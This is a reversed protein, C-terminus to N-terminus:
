GSSTLEASSANTSLASTFVSPAIAAAAWIHARVRAAGDAPQRQGRETRPRDPAGSPRLVQEQAHRSNMEGIQQDDDRGPEDRRQRQPEERAKPNRRDHELDHQPNQETRRNEAPDLGIEWYRDQRQD